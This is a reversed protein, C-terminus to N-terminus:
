GLFYGALVIKELDPDDDHYYGEYNFGFLNRLADEAMELPHFPLPYPEEDDEEPELTREGAWYPVEFALPSGINEMVGSDPSLSLSRRLHGDSAWIAYAFWDVVSHMAHLYLTRGRAEARFDTALESPQDLAADASCVPPLTFQHSIATLGPFCAAYVHNDPPNAQEFLTGDAIETATRGPYLREVLQRTAKRDITPESQLIPRIDGEAYMLIWDKAGM